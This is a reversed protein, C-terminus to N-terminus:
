YAPLFNKYYGGPQPQRGTATLFSGHGHSCKVVGAPTLGDITPSGTIDIWSFLHVPRTSAILLTIPVVSILYGKNTSRNGGLDSIATAFLNPSHQDKSFYTKLM